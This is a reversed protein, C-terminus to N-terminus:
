IAEMENPVRECYVAFRMKHNSGYYCTLLMLMDKNPQIKIKDVEYSEIIRTERVRYLLTGWLNTIMIEDGPNLSVINKFYKGGQWGRHGALVCNTNNGGVPLSTQSLHAAGASLHDSTAGLFIPMELEIKPISIVAFIEDELGFDGLTFSPQQYAWPDTLDAQRDEWIQLNYATVANWLTKYKIPTETSTSGEQVSQCPSPDTPAVLELFRAASVSVSRDLMAGHLYPFLFLGLGAIFVMLMLLILVKRYKKM